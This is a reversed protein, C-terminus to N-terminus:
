VRPPPNFSEWRSLRTEIDFRSAEFDTGDIVKDKGDILRNLWDVDDAAYTSRVVRRWLSRARDCVNEVRSV